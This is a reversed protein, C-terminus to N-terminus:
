GRRIDPPRLARRPHGTELTVGAPGRRSARTRAAIIGAVILPVAAGGALLAQPGTRPLLVGVLSQGLGAGLVITAVYVSFGEAQRGAPVSAHLRMAGLANLPAIPLGALFLCVTLLPVSPVLALPLILAGLPALYRPALRQTRAAAGEMGSALIGGLGSGAAVFALLPGAAAASLGLQEARPPLAAEFVGVTMGVAVTVALVPKIGPIRWPAAVPREAPPVLRPLPRMVWVAAAAAAAMVVLVVTPAVFLALTGALTPGVVFALEISVAEITNARELDRAPVIVPLLARMGGSIAATAVGQLIALMFLVAIPAGLAVAVALALLAGANIASARQLGARLEGRDLARGRLPSALGSTVTAAGALSAGVALSGTAQDGVLVFALLSMTVPLRSLFSAVTWRRWLPQRVLSTLGQRVSMTELRAKRWAARWLHQRLDRTAEQGM